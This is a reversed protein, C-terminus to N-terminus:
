NAALDSLLPRSDNYAIVSGIPEKVSNLGDREGTVHIAKIGAFCCDNKFSFFALSHCILQCGNALFSKEPSGANKGSIIHALNLFGNLDLEINM